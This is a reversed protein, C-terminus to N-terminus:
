LLFKSQSFADGRPLNTWYLVGLATILPLATMVGFSCLMAAWLKKYLSDPVSEAHLVSMAFTALLVGAFGLFVPVSETLVFLIFCLGACIRFMWKLKAYASNHIRGCPRVCCLALVAMALAGTLMVALIHLATLHGLQGFRFFEPQMLVLCTLAFVVLTTSSVPGSWRGLGSGVLAGCVLAAAQMMFGYWTPQGSFGVLAVIAVFIGASILKRYKLDRYWSPLSPNIAKLKRFFSASVAFLVGAVAYPLVSGADRLADYNGHMFILWILIAGEVCLAFNAARNKPDRLGSWGMQAVFAGGFKFVLAFLPLALLASWFFSPAVIAVNNFSSVASQVILSPEFM